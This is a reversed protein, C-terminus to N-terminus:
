DERSRNLNILKKLAKLPLLLLTYVLLDGFSLLAIVLLVNCIFDLITNEPLLALKTLCIAGIIILGTLVNRNRM